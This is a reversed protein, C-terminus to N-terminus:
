ALASRVSRENTSTATSCFAARWQPEIIKFLGGRDDFKFEITFSARSLASAALFADPAGPMSAAVM